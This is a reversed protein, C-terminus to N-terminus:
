QGGGDMDLDLGAPWGNGDADNHGGGSCTRPRIGRSRRGIGPLHRTRLAGGPRARRPCLPGAGGGAPTERLFVLTEDDAYVWRMGGERLAASSRRAAILGRYTELLRSDWGTAAGRCPAAATRASSARWASRTATPSCRSAPSPSCCGRRWTWRGPTRAWSRASRPHHRALRGPQLQAPGHGLARRGRVRADDGDRLRRRPPAGDAPLRPVEPAHGRDRLWTWVPRTFGAYNM